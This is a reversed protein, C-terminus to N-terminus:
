HFASEVEKTAVQRGHFYEIENESWRVLGSEEASRALFGFKGAAPTRGDLNVLYCQFLDSIRLQRGALNVPDGGRLAAAQLPSPLDEAPVPHFLIWENLGPNLGGVLLALNGADDRLKYEQWDYRSGAPLIEAKTSAAVTYLTGQLTGKKGVTLQEVRSATMRPASNTRIRNWWSYVAIGIVAVMIVFIVIGIVRSSSSTGTEGSLLASGGGDEPTFSSLGFATRVEQTPVEIGRYYEMEDGTWSVVLMRTGEDANFFQAVDGLEVGEPAQGEIQEM